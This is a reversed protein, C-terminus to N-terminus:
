TYIFAGVEEVGRFWEGFLGNSAEVLRGGTGWPAVMLVAASHHEAERFLATQQMAPIQAHAAKM